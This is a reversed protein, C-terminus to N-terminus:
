ELSIGELCMKASVQHLFDWIFFLRQQKASNLSVCYKFLQSHKIFKPRRQWTVGCLTQCTASQCISKSRTEAVTVHGCKRRGSAVRDSGIQCGQASGTGVRGTLVTLPSNLFIQSSSARPFKNRNKENEQWDDENRSQDVCCTPVVFNHLILVCLSHRFDSCTQNESM